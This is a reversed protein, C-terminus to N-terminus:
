FNQEIGNKFSSSYSIYNKGVVGTRQSMVSSLADTGAIESVEACHGAGHGGEM